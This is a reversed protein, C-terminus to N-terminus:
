TSSLLHFAYICRQIPKTGDLEGEWRESEDDTKRTRRMANGRRSCVVSWEIKRMKM